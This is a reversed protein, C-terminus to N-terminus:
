LKEPPGGGGDNEPKLGLFSLINRMEAAVMRKERLADTYTKLNINEGSEENKIVKNLCNLSDYFSLYEEIKDKFIQGQLSKGAVMKELNKRTEERKKEESKQRAM